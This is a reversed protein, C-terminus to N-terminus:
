EKKVHTYQNTTVNDVTPYPSANANFENALATTHMKMMMKRTSRGSSM